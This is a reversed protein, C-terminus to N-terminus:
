IKWWSTFLCSYFVKCLSQRLVQKANTTTLSWLSLAIKVLYQRM